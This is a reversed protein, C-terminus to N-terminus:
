EGAQHHIGREEDRGEQGVGGLVVRVCGNDATSVFLQSSFFPLQMSIRIQFHVCPALAQRIYQFPSQADRSSVPHCCQSQVCVPLLLSPSASYFETNYSFVEKM